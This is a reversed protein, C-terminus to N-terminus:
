KHWTYGDSSYVTTGWDGTAIFQNNSYSVSQVDGLYTGSVYYGGLYSVLRSGNVTQTWTKAADNSTYIFTSLGEFNYYASIAITGKGDTAISSLNYTGPAVTSTWSIGDTSTSIYGVYYTALKGYAVGNGIGVYEQHVSDYVYQTVTSPLVVNATASIESSALLKGSNATSITSLKPSTAAYVGISPILLLSVTLATAISLSFIKKVKM